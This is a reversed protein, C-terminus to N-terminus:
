YFIIKKGKHVYVGRHTPKAKLARGNLDYWNNDREEKHIDTVNEIGTINEDCDFNLNNSTKKSYLDSTLQFSEEQITLVQEDTLPLWARHAPSIYPTYDNNAPYWGIVGAVLSLRFYKDGGYTLTDVDSGKLLNEPYANLPQEHYFDYIMAYTSTTDNAFYPNRTIMVPTNCQLIESHNPYSGGAIPVFNLTTDNNEINVTVISAVLSRSMRMDYHGEYYTAANASSITFPYAARLIEGGANAITAISSNSLLGFCNRFVLKDQPCQYSSAYISTGKDTTWEVIISDNSYIGSVNGTADNDGNSIHVGNQGYIGMISGIYVGYTDIINIKGNSCNIGFTGGRFTVDSNTIDCGNRCYIGYGDAHSTTATVESDNIFIKGNNIGIAFLSNNQASLHLVSGNVILANRAIIGIEADSAVVSNTISISDNANDSLISILGGDMNVDCNDLTISGNLAMLGHEYDTINMSSNYMYIDRESRVAWIISDLICKANKIFINEDALLCQNPEIISLDHGPGVLRINGGCIIISDAQINSSALENFYIYGGDDITDGLIVGQHNNVLLTGMTLTDTSQTHLWLSGSDYNWHKYIIGNVGLFAGDTLIIHVDEPTSDGTLGSRIPINNTVVVSDTVYYWGAELPHDKNVGMLMTETLPLADANKQVGNRDLYSVTDARAGCLASVTLLVAITARLATRTNRAFQKM